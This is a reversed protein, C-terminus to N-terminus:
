SLYRSRGQLSRACSKCASLLATHTSVAVGSAWRPIAIGWMRWMTSATWINWAMQMM